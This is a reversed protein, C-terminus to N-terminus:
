HALWTFTLISVGPIQKSSTDTPAPPIVFQRPTQADRCPIQQRRVATMMEEKSFSPLALVNSALVAVSVATSFLM